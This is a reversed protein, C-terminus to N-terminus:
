EEEGAATHLDRILDEMNSFTLRPNIKHEDYLRDMDEWFENTEYVVPMLVYEGNFWTYELRDGEQFGLEKITKDSITIQIDMDTAIFTM